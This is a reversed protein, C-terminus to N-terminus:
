WSGLGLRRGGGYGSDRLWAGGGEAQPFDGGVRCRGGGRGRAAGWDTGTAGAGASGRGPPDPVGPLTPTTTTAPPAFDSSAAQDGPPDGAWSRQGVWSTDQIQLLLHLLLLVILLLLLLLLIVEVGSLSRTM